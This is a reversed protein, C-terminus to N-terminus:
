IRKQSSYRSLALIIGIDVLQMITASGGSSFFPLSIGTNPVLTTVVMMNLIVHLALKFTLGFIVYSCFKDAARVALVMGRAILAVFFLIIAAAGLFGLEECVVTFIFDNQPESIYGYKMRSEGFGLGFFGGSGIAYLGETVQWDSTLANAGRNLWTEVRGSSYGFLSILGWFGLGGALGLGLLLYLNTGGIFMMGATIATLIISGSIHKELAVLLVILLYAGLPLVFGYWLKKRGFKGTTIEEEFTAFVMALVLILATKAIESPQVSIGFVRIWRQAGGGVMGKVLVYVLLIVSVVYGALGGIRVRQPTLALVEVVVCLLGLGVYKLQELLADLPEDTVGASASYFMTLGIVLLLATLIMFTPDPGTQVLLPQGSDDPLEVSDYRRSIQTKNKKKKKGFDFTRKM